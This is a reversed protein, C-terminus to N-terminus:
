LCEELSISLDYRLDEGRFSLRGKGEEEEPVVLGRLFIKLFMQVLFILFLMQFILTQLVVEGELTKLLLMVLNIM